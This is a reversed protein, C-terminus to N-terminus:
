ELLIFSWRQNNDASVKKMQLYIGTSTFFVDNEIQGKLFSM